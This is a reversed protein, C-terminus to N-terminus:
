EISSTAIKDYHETGEEAYIQSLKYFNNDLYGSLRFENEYFEVRTVDFSNSQSSTFVIRYFSYVSSLPFMIYTDTSVTDDIQTSVQFSIDTGALVVWSKPKNSTNLKFGVTKFELNTKTIGSGEIFNLQIWDGSHASDSYSLESGTYAGESDYNQSNWIDLENRLRAFSNTYVNSTIFSFFFANSVSITLEDSNPFIVRYYDHNTANGESDLMSLILRARVCSCLDGKLRNNKLNIFTSHMHSQVHVSQVHVSCHKSINYWVGSGCEVVGSGCGLEGSGCGM